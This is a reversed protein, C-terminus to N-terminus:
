RNGGQYYYEDSFVWIYGGSTKQNKNLTNVIGKFSIDLEYSAEKANNYEKIFQNDLNLQIVKRDTKNVDVDQNLIVLTYGKYKRNNNAASSICGVKTKFYRACDNMSSFEMDLEICKIRKSNPQSEKNKRVREETYKQQTKNKHSLSMKHRTEKSIVQGTFYNSAREKQEDSWTNGYNPNRTPYQAYMEKITQSIREKTEDTHHKGFFPNNEGKVNDSMRKIAEESFEIGQVGDGGKTLNYGYLSDNSKYLAIYYKEKEYADELTLNDEIVEHLFNDWGYREIARSFYQNHKYGDGKRWRRDPNQCTIGIYVKNSPSVHKYVCYMKNAM